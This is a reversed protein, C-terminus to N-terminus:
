VPSSFQPSAAVNTKHAEDFAEVVAEPIRGRDSVEYGAKRAWERVAALQEARGPPTKHSRSLSVREGPRRVPASRVAGRTRAVEIFPKLVEELRKINAECLDVDYITSDLCFSITKDAFQTNDLDDVLRQAM